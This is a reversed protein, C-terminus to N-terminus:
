LLLGHAYKFSFIALKTITYLLFLGVNMDCEIISVAKDPKTEMVRLEYIQFVTLKLKHKSSYNSSFRKTHVVIINVKENYNIAIVDGTTLCAFNRLANELSYINSPFSGCILLYGSENLSTISICFNNFNTSHLLQSVIALGQIAKNNEEIM